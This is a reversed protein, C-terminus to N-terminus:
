ATFRYKIIKWIAIFGDKPRIKKGEEISRPFYEIPVEMIKYKKRLLKATIEVESDLRNSERNINKIVDAKFVKYGTWLDTLHCGYALNLLINTFKNGLYYKLSPRPNKILHRSGYVVEAKNELIPKLLKPYEKPHNELDADQILIIDGTAKRFGTKLAAGKGQNKQHYLITYKAELGKLLGRTGDTSGDDVLIVEKQLGLTDSEEVRKLIELLTDKENYIPIIISLKEMNNIM